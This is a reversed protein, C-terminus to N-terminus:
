DCTVAPMVVIRWEKEEEFARNKFTVIMELLVEYVLSVLEILRHVFKGLSADADKEAKLGAVVEQNGFMPIIQKLLDNLVRVQVREDYIVKLVESSFAPNQPRLGLQNRFPFGISYGGKQGYARWQSLLNDRECFCAVYTTAMRNTQSQPNSFWSDLARLAIASDSKNNENAKVWPSLVSRMVGCGYEVESSDNLYYASTAWLSNSEVIGKLGEATTYHHLRTLPAEWLRFSLPSELEANLIYKRRVWMLALRFDEFWDLTTSDNEIAM